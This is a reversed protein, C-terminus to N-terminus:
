QQSRNMIGRMITFARRFRLSVPRAAYSVFSEVAVASVDSRCAQHHALERSPRDVSQKLYAEREAGCALRAHQRPPKTMLGRSYHQSTDCDALPALPFLPPRRNNRGTSNYLLVCRLRSFRYLDTSVGFAPGVPVELLSAVTRMFISNCRPM